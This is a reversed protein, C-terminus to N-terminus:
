ENENLAEFFDAFERVQAVLERVHLRSGLAELGGFLGTEGVVRVVVAGALVVRLDLAVDEARDIGDEVSEELGHRLHRVLVLLHRLKQVVEVAGAELGLVAVDLGPKGAGGADLMCGMGVLRFVERVADGGLEVHDGVLHPLGELVGRPGFALGAHAGLAGLLADCVLLSDFAADFVLHLHEHEVLLIFDRREDALLEFADALSASAPALRGTVSIALSSVVPRHVTVVSVSLLPLGMM